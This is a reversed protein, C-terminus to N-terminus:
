GVRTTIRNVDQRNLIAQIERTDEDTHRALIADLDLRASPTDYSALERELNLRDRRIARRAELYNRVFEVATTRRSM